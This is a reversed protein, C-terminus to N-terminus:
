RSRWDHQLRDMALHGNAPLEPIGKALRLFRGGSGHGGREDVKSVFRNTPKSGPFAFTEAPRQAGGHLAGCERRHGAGDYSDCDHCIGADAGTNQHRIKLDRWLNDIIAVTNQQWLMERVAGPNGFKIRARRRAEEEPIGRAVNEAIEEAMYSEMEEMLEADARRRRFFRRLSM